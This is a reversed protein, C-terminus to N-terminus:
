CVGHDLREASPQLAIGGNGDDGTTVWEAVWAITIMDDSHASTM